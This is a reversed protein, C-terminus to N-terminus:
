PAEGVRPDTIVQTESGDGNCPIPGGIGALFLLRRGDPSWELPRMTAFVGAAEALTTTEGGDVPVFVIAAGPAAGAFQAAAAVGAGDPLWVFVDLYSRDDRATLNALAASEPDFSFLDVGHCYNGTLVLLDDVPSWRATPSNTIRYTPVGPQATESVLLGGRDSALWGLSWRGSPSDGGIIYRGSGPPRTAAVSRVAGDLDIEVFSGPLQAILTDDDRWEIPDNSSWSLATSLVQITGDVRDAVFIREGRHFRDETLVESAPRPASISIGEAM